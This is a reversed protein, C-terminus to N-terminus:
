TEDRNWISAMQWVDLALVDVRAKHAFVRVGLSDPRTPYIRSSLTIEENVFVEIVSRDVFVHFHILGDEVLPIPANRVVQRAPPLDHYM